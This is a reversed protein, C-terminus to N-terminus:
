QRVLDFIIRKPKDATAPLSHAWEVRVQDKLHIAIQTLNSGNRIATYSHILASRPFSKQLADKWDTNRLDVLLMNENNDLSYKYEVPGAADMVLRTKHGHEGVRVAHVAAYKQQSPTFTKTAQAQQYEQYRRTEKTPIPAMAGQRSGHVANQSHSGSASAADSSNYIRHYRPPLSEAQVPAQQMQPKTAAPIQAHAMAAQHAKMMDKQTQYGPNSPMIPQKYTDQALDAPMGNAPELGNMAERIGVTRDRMTEPQKYGARPAVEHPQMPARMQRQPTVKSMASKLDRRAGILEELAPMLVELDFKLRDVKHELMTMRRHISDSAKQARMQEKMQEPPIVAQPAQQEPEKIWTGEATQMVEYQPRTPAQTNYQYDYKYDTPPWDKIWNCGGLAVLSSSLVLANLILTKPRM